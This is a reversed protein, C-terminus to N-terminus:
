PSNLFCKPRDKLFAISHLEWPALPLLLGLLFWQPALQWEAVL